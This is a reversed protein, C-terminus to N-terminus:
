LSSLFCHYHEINRSTALPNTPDPTCCVVYREFVAFEEGRNTRLIENGRVCGCVSSLHVLM